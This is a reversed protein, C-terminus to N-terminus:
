SEAPLPTRGAHRVVPALRRRGPRDRRLESPAHGGLWVDMRKPKPLVRVDDYHFRDGHHSFPEGTWCHRM